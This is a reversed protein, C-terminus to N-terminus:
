PRHSDSPHLDLRQRAPLRISFVSGEGVASIVDISGGHAEILQKTIALGLGSGGTARSRSEDVRYFRDFLNPLHEAAIGPGTDSVTLVVDGDDRRAGVRVSGGAPTHRVANSVLNGLAQRLRVPDSHVEIPEPADVTLTVGAEDARVRHAAAVQRSLEAADTDEPHLRLKGADALALDQLDDILRQLLTAEELLSTVLSQDLPVVGDEAAELYGRVNAVPTRLEHAVDSVMARRRTENTEISDAMSNFATALQAVEDRGSLEVRADHDGAGMRRAAATLASIPRTLRRGALVTVGTATALVALGALTTRWWGDGSFPDFRDATGTYLLAPEAVFPAIAESWATSTCEDAADIIDVPGRELQGWAPVVQRLGHERFRVEYPVNANSFCEELLHTAEKNVELAAQSPKSLEAPVCDGGPEGPDPPLQEILRTPQPVASDGDAVEEARVGENVLVEGTPTVEVDVGLDADLLCTTAEVALERRRQIEEDTLRWSAPVMWLGSPDLTFPGTSVDYAPEASDDAIWVELAGAPVETDGTSFHVAPLSLADIEATPTSPLASTAASDALVEGDRTALAVRRGAGAALEAVLPGVDDWTDNNLAYDTLAQYTVTDAELTRAFEGRFREGTERTTLWATAAVAFVAVTLSLGLLRLLLSSRM